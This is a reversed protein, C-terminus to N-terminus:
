AALLSTASRIIFAAQINSCYVGEATQLSPAKLIPSPQWHERVMDLVCLQAAM